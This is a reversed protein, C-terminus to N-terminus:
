GPRGRFRPPAAGRGLGWARGGLRGEPVTEPPRERYGARLIPGPDGDAFMVRCPGLYPCPPCSRDSPSPGTDLDGRTMEAADTGLQRGAQAVEAPTRRLWTRRFGDAVQQEAPELRHAHRAQAYMRRHQPVSRGGGSPEHQRVAPPAGSPRRRRWRGAGPWRRGPTPKGPPGPPCRLENFITGTIAMGLYFQEWAWCATLAEEDAALEDTPPWEGGVLRHRVIWYADGADVAMLDIRGRYRVAEGDATVLAAEPRGPDLVTVEYDAEALVPAFRDVTPGWAFYRELLDQGAEAQEQWRRTDVGAGCRERQQALARELGQM